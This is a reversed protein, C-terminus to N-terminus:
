EAPPATLWLGLVGESMAVLPASPIEGTADTVPGFRFPIGQAGLAENWHAIAERVLSRRGDSPDASLIVVAPSKSWTSPGLSPAVALAATAAAGIAMAAALARVLRRILPASIM